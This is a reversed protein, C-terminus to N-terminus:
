GRGRKGQCIRWPKVLALMDIADQGPQGEVGDTSCTVITQMFCRKVGALARCGRDGRLAGVPM